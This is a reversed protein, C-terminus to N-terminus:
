RQHDLPHRQHEGVIAGAIERRDAVVPEAIAHRPQGAARRQQRAEGGAVGDREVIRNRRRSEDGCFHFEPAVAADIVENGAHELSARDGDEREAALLAVLRDLALIERQEDRHAARFAPSSSGAAAPAAAGPTGPSAPSSTFAVSTGSWFEDPSSGDPPPWIRSISSTVSRTRRSFCSCTESFIAEIPRSAAPTACSTFVGSVPMELKVWISSSPASGASGFVASSWFTSRCVNRAAFITLPSNFRERGPVGPLSGTSTSRFATM